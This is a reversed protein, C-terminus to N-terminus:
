SVWKYHVKLNTFEKYSIKKERQLRGVVIGPHIQNKDAFDVIGSSSFNQDNIYKHWNSPSILFDSSWKNAHKEEEGNQNDGAISFFPKKHDFLIHSIEHFFTFWLVDNTKYRLSLQIIAKPFPSLWRTLSNVHCGKLEPVFVVAVGASAAIKQLEPIFVEPDSELAVRKFDPLCDLLRQRNFSELDISLAEKYGQRIWAKLAYKNIESEPESIRYAGALLEDKEISKQMLNFDSFGFFRLLNETRKIKDSTAAVFGKNAMDNYNFKDSWNAQSEILEEQKAEAECNQFNSSLNLWFSASPGLVYELKTAVDPTISVNDNIINSVHKKTVGLHEALVEQTMNLSFLVERLTEGPATAYDSVIMNKNTSM